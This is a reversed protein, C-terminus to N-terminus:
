DEGAQGKPKINVLDRPVHGEKSFLFEKMARKKAGKEKELRQSRPFAESGALQPPRLLLLDPPFPPFPPSPLLLLLDAAESLLIVVIDCGSGNGKAWLECERRAGAQAPSERSWEGICVAGHVTMAENNFFSPPFLSYTEQGSMFAAVPNPKLGPLWHSDFPFNILLYLGAGIRQKEPLDFKCRWM